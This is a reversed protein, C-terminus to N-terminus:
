HNVNAGTADLEASYKLVLSDMTFQSLVANINENQAAVGTTM